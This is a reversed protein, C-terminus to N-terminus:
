GRREISFTFSTDPVRYREGLVVRRGDEPLDQWADDHDLRQVAGPGTPLIRLGGRTAVIRAAAGASRHELRPARGQWIRAPRYFRRRSGRVRRLRQNTLEEDVEDPDWYVVVYARDFAPPLTYGGLIVLGALTLAALALAHRWCWWWPSELVTAEVPVRLVAAGAEPDEVSLVLAPGGSGGHGGSTGLSELAEPCEGVTIRLTWVRPGASSLELRGAEGHLAQWAGSEDLLEVLVGDGPWESAVRLPYRGRVKAGSLDLRAEVVDGESLEGLVVPVAPGLDVEGVVLVPLELPRALEEPRAAVSLAVSGLEAPTWSGTYRRDGAVADGTGGSGDDVLRVPGAPTSVVLAEPVPAGPSVEELRVVLENPLEVELRGPVESVLRWPIQVVELEATAEPVTGGGEGTFRLTTRGAAGPTWTGTYVGDGATTDEGTGDDVLRATSGGGSGAVASSVTLATPPAHTPAKGGAARVEVELRLPVDVPTTSPVRPSLEWPVEVATLTDHFTRRSHKTRVELSVESRGPRDLDVRGTFTGDGRAKDEGEGDDRVTVTRGGVKVTLELGPVKDHDRLTKGTRGDILRVQVPQDQGTGLEKTVLEVRIAYDQILLWGGAADLDRATFTWTGAVPNTLRAVTYHRVVGDEGTTQGTRWRTEVGDAGPAAATPELAGVRGDAAVVVLAESVYPDITATFRARGGPQVEGRAIAGTSGYFRQIVEAMHGVLERSSAARRAFDLESQAWGELPSPGEARLFFAATVAGSRRASDVQAKVRAEEGGSGLNDADVIFLLLREVAPDSGLFSVARDVPAEFDNGGRWSGICDDLRGKFPASGGSSATVGGLLVAPSICAYQTAFVGIQDDPGILDGLIKPVQRTYYPLDRSKSQMSGSGDIVVAM